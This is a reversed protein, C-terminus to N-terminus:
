SSEEGRIPAIKGHLWIVQPVMFAMMAATIGFVKFNVCVNEAFNRAVYINLVALGAFWATWLGNILNWAHGGLALPEQFVGELLRRALPKGGILASGFFAAATLALLVTPKWQIFRKDHLWLTAAGLVLVVLTTIVHMNKYKGTRVRHVCLQIACAVMLAGTAWYIGFLKFILFFALLPSLELLQNM